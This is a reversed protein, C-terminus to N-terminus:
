RISTLLANVTDLDWIALPESFVLLAPGHKGEFALMAQRYVDGDSNTGESIVLSTEQVGATIPRTELIAMRAQTDVSGPNLKYIAEALKEADSSNESQVLYLHSHGNAPHYSVLTYDDLSASFEPSYGAPVDFDAIEAAASNVKEPQTSLTAHVGCATLLFVLMVLAIIGHKV